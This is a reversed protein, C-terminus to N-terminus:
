YDSDPYVRYLPEGSGSGNSYVAWIEIIDPDEKRYCIFWRDLRKREGKPQYKMPAIVEGKTNKMQDNMANAFPENDRDIPYWQFSGSKAGKRGNLYAVPVLHYENGEKDKKTKAAGYSSGKSYFSDYADAIKDGYYTKYTQERNDNLVMLVNNYIEKASAIDSTRRAKNVYGLIAPVLFAALIGIIAIVVILEILTFGKKKM